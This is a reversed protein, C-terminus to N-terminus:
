IERQAALLMTNSQDNLSSALNAALFYGFFLSHLRNAIKVVVLRKDAHDIM